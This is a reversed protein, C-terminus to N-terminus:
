TSAAAKSTTPSPAKPPTSSPAKPTTSSPTKDSSAKDGSTESNASPPKDGSKEGSKEGSPGRAGKGSSSRSDNKYFGTGKFSIGGASFIKRLAGGCATCETRPPDTFSQVVEFGESCTRCAYEYTPM